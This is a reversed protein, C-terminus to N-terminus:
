CPLTMGTQMLGWIVGAVAVNRPETVLNTYTYFTDKCFARARMQVAKPFKPKEYMKMLIRDIFYFPLEYNM